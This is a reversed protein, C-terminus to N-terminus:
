RADHFKNPHLIRPFRSSGRAVTGRLLQVRALSESKIGSGHQQEDNSRGEPRFLSPKVASDCRRKRFPNPGGHTCRAALGANLTGIQSHIYTLYTTGSWRGIKMITSDMTGQLKLAMAGSARLSHTGIRRMDYGQAGCRLTYRPLSLKRWQSSVHRM